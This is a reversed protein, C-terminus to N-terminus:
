EDGKQKQQNAIFAVKACNVGKSERVGSSACDYSCCGSYACRKCENEAPSPTVYGGLMHKAGDGAIYKSYELFSSFEEREMAGEIKRGNLYADVFSSREKEAVTNDSSKVVDESGDMFGKLTFAGEPKSSYEVKAPFYYAGAARKGEAVARLYLPLQLKLGMYYSDAKGDHYGTKYDIVRVMDGCSDVRDIRGGVMVGDAVPM